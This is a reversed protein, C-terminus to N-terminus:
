DNSMFSDQRALLELFGNSKKRQAEAAPYGSQVSFTRFLPNNPSSPYSSPGLTPSSGAGGASAPVASDGLRFPDSELSRARTLSPLGPGGGTSLSLAHPRHSSTSLAPHSSWVGDGGPGVGGATPDSLSRVPPTMSAPNSQSLSSHAPSGPPGNPRFFRLLSAIPSSPSSGTHSLSLAHSNPATTQGGNIISGDPNSM